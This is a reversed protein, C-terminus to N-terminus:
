NMLPFTITAQPFNKKLWTDPDVPAAAKKRSGGAMEKYVQKEIADRAHLARVFCLLKEIVGSEYRGRINNERRYEQYDYADVWELNDANINFPNLDKFTVYQQEFGYEAERNNWAAAVLYKIPIYANTYDRSVLRYGTSSKTVYFIGDIAMDSPDYRLEQILGPIDDKCWVYKFSSLKLNDSCEGYRIRGDRSVIINKLVDFGIWEPLTRYEVGDIVYSMQTYEIRLDNVEKVDTPEYAKSKERKDM